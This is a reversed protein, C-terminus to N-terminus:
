GKIFNSLEDKITCPSYKGLRSKLSSWKGSKPGHSTVLCLTFLPKSHVGTIQKLAQISRGVSQTAVPGLLIDFLM